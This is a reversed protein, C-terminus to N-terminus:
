FQSKLTDLNLIKLSNNTLSFYFVGKKESLM